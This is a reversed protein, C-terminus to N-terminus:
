RALLLLEQLLNDATRVVRSSASVGASATILNIFERAIDVNSQELAGAVVAGLGDTLPEGILAEGSNPGTVFVNESQAILGEPNIFTALAIRGLVQDRENTYKGVITGDPQVQYGVWSGSPTGDQTDLIVTSTGDTASHGTLATFDLEFTMPTVAGVGARDISLSTGTAAVFRGSQDFTITGSGLSPSLDTDDASEAYFRWTTQTDTRSELAFTLRTEVWNGLSDFGMFSTTAGTGLAPTTQTWTFAETGSTANHISAADLIVESEIGINSRVVLSGGEVLVGAQEPLSPDVDIGAVAEIRAALDGYTSGDTGVVFRSEPIAREGKRLNILLEDGTAFLPVGEADVLDTLPTTASPEGGGSTTLAGSSFIGGSAIGSRGDLHGDMQALTTAEPPITSGVPIVIDDIRGTDINGSADAPFGQVAFGSATVLTGAGNVNLAGDRTYKQSGDPVEVILFGQGDIALDEAFGTSEVSGQAFNKQIAAVTVGTGIQRPLTGGSTDSPGEGESITRYLTTEFLTRQNKFATTNVNALNHGVTDVTVTNSQIGSFGVQMASTLSM